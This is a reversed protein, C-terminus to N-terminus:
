FTRDCDLKHFYDCHRPARCSRAARRGGSCAAGPTAGPSPARARGAAGPRGAGVPGRPSGGATGRSTARRPSTCCRPRGRRDPLRPEAAAPRRVRRPDLDIVRKLNPAGGAGFQRSLHERSVGLRRALAAHAGAAGCRAVLIDWAQRQLPETLRLLRPADALASAAPRPSRARSCSSAWWRTTWGRSRSAGRRAHASAARGAARRRRSPVARLRRGPHRPLPQPSRGPRGPARGHDAGPRDRRGAPADLLATSRPRRAARSWAPARGRAPHASARAIARAARSCPPSPPWPTLGRRRCRRRGRGARGSRSWRACWRAARAQLVGRANDYSLM